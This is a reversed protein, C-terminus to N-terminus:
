PIVYILLKIESIKKQLYYIFYNLISENSNCTKNCSELIGDDQLTHVLSLQVSIVYKFFFFFCAVPTIHFTYWVKLIFSFGTSPSLIEIFHKLIQMGNQASFTEDDGM